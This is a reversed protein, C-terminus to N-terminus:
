LAQEMEPEKTKQKAPQMLATKVIKALAKIGRERAIDNFDTLGKEKEETTLKPELTTGGVAKAAERANILGTNHPKGNIILSHDDDAAIMPPCNPHAKQLAKAVPGLNGADFAVAITHGTAQHLSAGTAYGEAIIIPGKKDGEIIHMLDTKKGDKLYRKTGDPQIAQVNMLFGKATTMPVLLNDNKDMRLEGVPVQKQVLYPHDSPVPRANEFIGFARKAIKQHLVRLEKQREIGRQVSQAKILELEDPDLKSGTAVWKVAEHGTRYNMIQGAPHGDLFGRYSGTLEGKKDDIVPVRHWKGDMIPNGKIVLGNVQCAEGFELEPELKTPNVKPLGQWKAFLAQDLNKPTFWAKAKRDWKAGLAKAENKEAFPVDIYTRKAPETKKKDSMAKEEKKAPTKAQQAALELKKRKEPEMVWTRIKEADRAAQFLLNHDDHLARLWSEVYNAHREPRHGLGLETAIMYSSMEARLEEKAYNESGFAGFDRVLRKENGTAHGLEHLATAYYDYPGDFAAKVPMHIKDASPRYYARDAQDNIISVTGNELVQEAKQEPKWDPTPAIYPELDDIQEGNFVVAYFVKPRDLRVSRTKQTGSDDLVPKNEEDVVGRRESWKWYEIQTGQEGKRVQAEAAKAQKFTMWRPDSRGQMELVWSNIGRYDKKNTPNFPASRIVGPQWPKQWPATGAEIQKIMVQAVNQRFNGRSM